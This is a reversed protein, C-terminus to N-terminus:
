AGDRRDHITRLELIQYTKKGRPTQVVVEDGVEKNLLAQGIPSSISIRGAAANAEEPFVIEYVQLDGDDDELTVQSGYGVATRPISHVSYLSLDRIRQEMQAIRASLYAQREKCAQYEANERLDGHARAAELEKPLKNKLEYKLDELEKRLRQVIPLNM